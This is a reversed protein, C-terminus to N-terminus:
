TTCHERLWGCKVSLPHWDDPAIPERESDDALWKHSAKAQALSIASHADKARLWYHFTDDPWNGTAHDPYRLLVSWKRPLKKTKTKKSM